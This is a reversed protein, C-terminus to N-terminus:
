TLTCGLMKKSITQIAFNNNDPFQQKYWKQIIPVLLTIDSPKYLYDKDPMKITYTNRYIKFVLYETDSAIAERISDCVANEYHYRELISLKINKEIMYRLRTTIYNYNNNFPLHIQKIKFPDESVFGIKNYEVLDDCNLGTIFLVLDRRNFYYLKELNCYRTFVCQLIFKVLNYEYDILNTIVRNFEYLSHSSKEYSLGVIEGFSKSTSM